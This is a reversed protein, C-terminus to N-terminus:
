FRGSASASGAMDRQHAPTEFEGRALTGADRRGRRGPLATPASPRETSWSSSVPARRLARRRRRARVPSAAGRRRVTRARLSRRRRRRAEDACGASTVNFVRTNATNTLYFRVVEGRKAELAPEARRRRALRQRLPGDGRTYDRVRQFAAIRGDEIPHRRAHAAGRPQGAALLRARSPTSSSTGTSAWRRATTRVFTRTTGTFAPTPCSCRTPSRTASRSRRRHKTRATTATIWGCATGTCPRRSIAQNTVHVTITSGQRVEADTGPGIRQLRAHARRCGRDAEEGARDRASLRRRGFARDDRPTAGGASRRNHEPVARDHAHAAFTTM